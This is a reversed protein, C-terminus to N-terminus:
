ILVNIVVNAILLKHVRPELYGLVRLEPARDIKIHM